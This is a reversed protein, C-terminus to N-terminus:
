TVSRLISSPISWGHIQKCGKLNHLHTYLPLVSLITVSDPGVTEKSLFERFLELARMWEGNSTYGSIIANWSVLDKVIMGKFLNEADQLQGVRLYFSVLANSVFVNASLEARQLVFCHIEKGIRYSSFVPLINALTAYNPPIPGKVM